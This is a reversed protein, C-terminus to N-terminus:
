RLSRRGAVVLAARVPVPVLLFPLAFGAGLAFALPTMALGLTAGRQRGQWLWVGAVVDLACVGVLTGGLAAFRERGLREFPGALARFGWPTMPLEGRRALHALVFPVTVGFGADALFSLAAIRIAISPRQARPKM